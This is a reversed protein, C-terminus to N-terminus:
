LLSLLEDPETSRAPTCQLTRALDANLDGGRVARREAESQEPRVLLGSTSLRARREPDAAAGAECLRERREDPSTPSGANRVAGRRGPWHCRLPPARGLPGLAAPRRLAPARVPVPCRLPARPRGTPTALASPRPRGPPNHAPGERPRRPPTPTAKGGPRPMDKLPGPASLPTAQGSPPPQGHPSRGQGSEAHTDRAGRRAEQVPVATTLGGEDPRQAKRLATCM